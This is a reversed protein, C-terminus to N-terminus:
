MVLYVQNIKGKNDLHIEFIKDQKSYAIIEDDILGHDEDMRYDSTLRQVYPFINDTTPFREFFKVTKIDHKNKFSNVIGKHFRTTPIPLHGAM